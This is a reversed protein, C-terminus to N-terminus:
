LGISRWPRNSPYSKSYMQVLFIYQWCKCIKLKPVFAFNDLDILLTTFSKEKIKRSFLKTVTRTHYLKYLPSHNEEIDAIARYRVQM